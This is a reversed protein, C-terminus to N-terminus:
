AFGAYQEHGVFWAAARHPVLFPAIDENTVGPRGRRTQWAHDLIEAAGKKIAEPIPDMGVQLTLTWPKAPLEGGNTLRLVGGHGVTMGTVDIAEGGDIYAGSTLSQVSPGPLAVETGSERIELTIERTSVWGVRAEVVSTVANIYEQLLDDRKSDDDVLRLATKAETLTLLDPM